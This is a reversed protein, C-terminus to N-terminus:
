ISDSANSMLPTLRPAEVGKVQKTRNKKISAFSKESPIFIEARVCMEFESECPPLPLALCAGRAGSDDVSM